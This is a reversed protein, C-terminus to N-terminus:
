VNELYSNLWKETRTLRSIKHEAHERAKAVLRNAVILNHHAENAEEKMWKRLARMKAITMGVKENFTDKPDCKAKGKFIRGTEEIQLVAVVTRKDEDVYYEIM